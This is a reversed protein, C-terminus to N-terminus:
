KRGGRGAGTGVFDPLSVCELMGGNVGAIPAHTPPASPMRVREIAQEARMGEVPREVRSCCSGSAHPVHTASPCRWM